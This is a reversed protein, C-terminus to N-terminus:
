SKPLDPPRSHPSYLSGDPSLFRRGPPPPLPVPATEPTSAATRSGLSLTLFPSPPALPSAHQSHPSPPLPRHCFGLTFTPWTRLQAVGRSGGDVILTISGHRLFVVNYKSCVDPQAVEDAKLHPALYHPTAPQRPPFPPPLITHLSLLISIKISEIPLTFDRHLITFYLVITIFSRREGGKRHVTIRATILFRVFTFVQLDYNRRAALAPTLHTGAYLPLYQMLDAMRQCLSERGGGEGGGERGGKTRGRRREAGGGAAERCVHM